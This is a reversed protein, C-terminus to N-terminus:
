AYNILTKPLNTDIMIRMSFILSVRHLTFVLFFLLCRRDNQAFYIRSKPGKHVFFFFICFRFNDGVNIKLNRPFPVVM